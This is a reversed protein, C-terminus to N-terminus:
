LSLQNLLLSHLIGNSALISAPQELPDKKVAYTTFAGASEQVLLKGAAWDWPYLHNMWFADLKGAAVYALSLAASGLNRLTAGEKILGGLKELSFTPPEYIEYPFGIGILADEPHRTHSVSLKEGNLFAGKNKEAIFLEHSLPQYIIGCLTEGLYSAAISISFLPIHRSFNSTGDLPDVIWLITQPHHGSLGTEEGLFGHSPFHQRIMSFICEESKRDFETVFNQRGPKATITYSTGFGKKIIEGAKLAAQVAVLTLHSLDAQINQTDTFLM